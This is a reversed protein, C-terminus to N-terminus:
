RCRWSYARTRRSIERFWSGRSRTWWRGSSWSWRWWRQLIRVQGVQGKAAAPQLLDVYFGLHLTGGGLVNSQKTKSGLWMNETIKVWVWSLHIVETDGFLWWCPLILLLLFLYRTDFQPMTPLRFFCALAANNSKKFFWWECEYQHHKWQHGDMLSLAKKIGADAAAESIPRM